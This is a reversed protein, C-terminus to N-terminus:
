ARVGYPGCARRAFKRHDGHGRSGAAGTVSPNNLATVFGDNLKAIIDKPTGKPALVAYWVSTEFGELTEAITPVDPLLPFYARRNRRRNRRPPGGQGRQAMRAHRLLPAGTRCSPRSLGGGRGSHSWRFAPAPMSCPAPLHLRSGIGSSAYSLLGPDAKEADILDQISNLPVDPNKYLVYAARSLHSIPEFDEIPDWTLNAFLNPNIALQANVTLVLTYGDPEAEAVVHMGLNGGAGGRNDVLVRVGLKKSLPKALRRALIDAPGGAIYPVVVTIPKDPYTQAFSPGVVVSIISLVRALRHM